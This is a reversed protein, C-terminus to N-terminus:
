TTPATTVVDDSMDSRMSGTDGIESAGDDLLGGGKDGGTDEDGTECGTTSVMDADDLNPLAPGPKEGADVPILPVIPAIGPTPPAAGIVSSSPTSVPTAVGSGGGSAAPNSSTTVTTPDVSESIPAVLPIRTVALRQRVQFESLRRKGHQNALYKLQAIQDERLYQAIPVDIGDHVDGRDTHYIRVPADTKARGFATRRGLRLYQGLGTDIVSGSSIEDPISETM